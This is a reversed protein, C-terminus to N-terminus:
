SSFSNEEFDKGKYDKSWPYRVLSNKYLYHDPKIISTEITWSIVAVKINADPFKKQLNNKVVFMTKGTDLADDIILIRKINESILSTDIEVKINSIESKNIKSIFTRAKNSEYIRIKDLIKYPLIKLFFRVIINNKVNGDRQLKVSSIKVNGRNDKKIENLIYGGGNLIGVILDPKTEIKSILEVCKEVFQIQSLTVVKM